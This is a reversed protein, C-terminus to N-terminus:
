ELSGGEQPSLPGTRRAEVGEWVYLMGSRGRCSMGEERSSEREGDKLRLDSTLYRVVFPAVPYLRQSERICADVMPLQPRRRQQQGDKIAASSAASSSSSGGDCDVYGDPGVALLM